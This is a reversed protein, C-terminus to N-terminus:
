PVKDMLFWSAGPDMMACDLREAGTSDEFMVMGNELNLAM